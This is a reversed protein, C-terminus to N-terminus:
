SYRYLVKLTGIVSSFVELLTRGSSGYVTYTNWEWILELLAGCSGTKWSAPQFLAKLDNLGVMLGANGLGM